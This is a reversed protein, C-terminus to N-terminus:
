RARTFGRALYENCRQQDRVVVIRQGAADIKVAQLM